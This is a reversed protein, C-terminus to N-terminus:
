RGGNGGGGLVAYRAIQDHGVDRAATVGGDREARAWEGTWRLAEGIDLKTSWGLTALALSPDVDLHGAEDLQKGEAQVWSGSGLVGQLQDTIAAAPIGPENPGFILALPLDDRDALLREAYGVYGHLPDLVHQWSRIAGPRRLVVPDDALWARIIDPVLRGRTTDGGGIVNGARATVVAPGSGAQGFSTRWSTVALEACAKSASYPDNGGLPDDERFALGQGNNAYVKDTTVVVCAQVASAPDWCGSLVNLTGLVNSQYTGIPDAYGVDVLAQAALHFVVEAGSSVIADRVDPEDRIDGELARLSWDAAFAEHAGGPSPPRAFGTVAAGLHELMAALWAGKFGTHGTILV